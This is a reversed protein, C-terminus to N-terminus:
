NFSPLGTGGFVNQGGTKNYDDIVGCANNFDHASFAAGYTSAMEISLEWTNVNRDRILRELVAIKCIINMQLEPHVFLHLRGKYEQLKYCLKQELSVNKTLVLIPSLEEYDSM